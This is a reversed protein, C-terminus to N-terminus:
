FKISNKAFIQAFKIFICKWFTGPSARWTLRFILPFLRKQFNEHIILYKFALYLLFEPAISTKKFIKFLRFSFFLIYFIVFSFCFQFNIKVWKRSSRGTGKSQFIVIIRGFNKRNRHIKGETGEPCGHHSIINLINLKLEFRVKILFTYFKIYWAYM